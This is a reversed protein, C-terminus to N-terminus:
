CEGCIMEHLCLLLLLSLHFEICERHVYLPSMVYRETLHINESIVEFVPYDSAPELKEERQQEAEAELRLRKRPPPPPVPLEDKQAEEGQDANEAEQLAREQAERLLRKSLPPPPTSSTAEAESNRRWRSKVKLPRFESSTPQEDKSMLDAM